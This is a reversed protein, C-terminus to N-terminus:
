LLELLRHLLLRYNGFFLGDGAPSRISLINQLCDPQLEEGSGESAMAALHMSHMMLRLKGKLLPFPVVASRASWHESSLQRGSRFLDLEGTYIAVLGVVLGTSAGVLTPKGDKIVDIFMWSMMASASALATTMFAHAALGNAALASGANFGFWGFWLIFAGLAVFPINHVRYATQEYGRRRGLIISFVLASVGSSIHVM